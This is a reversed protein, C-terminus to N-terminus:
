SVWQKIDKTVSWIGNKKEVVYISGSASLGSETYTGSVEAKGETIYTIEDVHFLLGKRERFESGYRVPPKQGAFRQLFTPTPDNRFLSIFYAPANQKQGSPNHEFMYRFTAEAVHLDEKRSIEEYMSEVLRSESEEFEAKVQELTKGAQISGIVRKQMDKIQAIHKEIGARDTVESHGSCFREAEITELMKTLTKVHGFSNGGKYSHILQPRTLFIQDGIFATKEDPVYVVIDGTTHGVGFYWLEVKKSGLYIDMKDRFTVAPTFLLLEPKNWESPFGNRDPAFFDNRCNEHAVFTTTQPLYRNGNIHDGDSHTNVLFKIPKDTIKRLGKLVQDVSEKEMKSDILLVGNDGIYAGSNSGSGGVIEYLNGSIKRFEISRTGRQQAFVVTPLLLAAIVTTLIATRM